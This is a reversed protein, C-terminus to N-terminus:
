ALRSVFRQVCWIFADPRDAFVHHGSRPLWEVTADPLGGTAALVAESSVVPDDTGHILLVPVNVDRIADKLLAPGTPTLFRNDALSEDAACDLLRRWASEADDLLGFGSLVVGRARGPYLRALETALAGTFSSSVVVFPGPTNDLVARCIAVHDAFTADGSEAETLGNGPLDVAVAAREGRTARLLPSYYASSEGLPPLLLLTPEEGDVALAHVAGTGGVMYRERLIGYSEQEQMLAEIPCARDAVADRGTDCAQLMSAIQGLSAFNDPIIQSEHVRIGLSTEAYALLSMMSLSDIVGLELLPTDVGLDEGEGDLIEEVIFRKLDNTLSSHEM